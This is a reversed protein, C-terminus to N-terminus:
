ETKNAANAAANVKVKAKVKLAEIYDYMEQQGILGGIQQAEQQRRAQDPQAPQSVKGIRYVAYGQGPLDVGVYAPLKSVDAKLAAIAGAPNFPPEKARTVIKAEGFGTADGSAKAAALKQEGAARALRAAEEVTVRQRIQADVEALPRKSAPRFEVVRGAVLVSPAVEVAETNRKNKVSDTGFLAALFKENNVPADGLAPNPKRTLNDVTQIKLGLKDAVPKLSDSQEYVTNSFTEALESYKKSMKQKKLDAAIETKAEELPKQAAPKIATVKIVHWGFESQVLNGIEGEKLAYIADEVPKVFLGKEVVGLDGGAQASGPDQSQAKAVAAFSAPDKRVAALAAEAKAKAAAQDAPKADRAVTILIHSATRQEPTTYAKLNKNYYESIEADSVQVQSDVVAQDFVVYEAKVQEPVQFLAANKDYYAKVMDDTVKVQPLFNTIPFVLEQVEREQDSINSLRESVSRPAFATSQIAGSLQQVALDRRLRQDFMAPTMGQAALAAKYQEMDFSGDPKRFAQIEMITKQLTADSVTMHSRNIEANIAREAVLNNLVARKAEPTEFVKQDFQAGMMQRAQDIQRRQADDWEQQTVKQGGVTAVGENANGRDQYSEVGVLVFSPVILLLLAGQMIRKNNRVFDFM